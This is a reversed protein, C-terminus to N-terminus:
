FERTNGRLIGSPLLSTSAHGPILVAHTTLRCSDPRQNRPGKAFASITVSWPVFCSHPLFSIPDLAHRPVKAGHLPLLFLGEWRPFSPFLQM